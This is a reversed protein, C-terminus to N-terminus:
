ITYSKELHYNSLQYRLYLFGWGNEAQISKLFTFLAVHM